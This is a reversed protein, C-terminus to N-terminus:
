LFRCAQMIRRIRVVGDGQLPNRRKLM